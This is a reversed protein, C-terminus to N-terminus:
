RIKDLIRQVEKQPDKPEVKFKELWIDIEGKKFRVLRGVRYFPIMRKEVWGYVSSIPIGLYESLEKVNYIEKVIKM